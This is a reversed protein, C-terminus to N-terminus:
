PRLSQQNRSSQEPQQVLHPAEHVESNPQAEHGIEPEDLYTNDHQDPGFYGQEIERNKFAEAEARNM